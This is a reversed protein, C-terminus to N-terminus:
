GVELEIMAVAGLSLVFIRENSWQRMGGVQPLSLVAMSAM